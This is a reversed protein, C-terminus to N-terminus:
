MKERTCSPLQSFTSRPGSSPVLHNGSFTPSLDSKVCTMGVSSLGKVTDPKPLLLVNYRTLSRRGLPLDTRTGTFFEDVDRNTDLKPLSLAFGRCSCTPSLAMMASKSARKDEDSSSDINSDNLMSGETEGCTCTTVEEPPFM